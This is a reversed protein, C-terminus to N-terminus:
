GLVKRPKQKSGAIVLYDKGGKRFSEFSCKPFGEGRTNLFCAAFNSGLQFESEQSDICEVLNNGLCVKLLYNEKIVEENLGCIEFFKEQDGFIIELDNELFCDVSIERLVVSDHERFDFDEGYFLNVDIVIGAGIILLLAVFSLIMLQKGSEGAGKKFWNILVMRGRMKRRKM